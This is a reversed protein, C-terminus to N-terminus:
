DSVQFVRRILTGNNSEGMSKVALNDFNLTQNVGPWYKSCKERENEIPDAVMVILGNEGETQEFVM